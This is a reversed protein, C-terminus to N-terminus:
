CNVEFYVRRDGGESIWDLALQFGAIYEETFDTEDVEFVEAGDATKRINFSRNEVCEADSSDLAGLRDSRIADLAKRVDDADELFYYSGGAVNDYGAHGASTCNEEFWHVLPMHIWGGAHWLHYEIAHVPLEKINEPDDDRRAWDATVQRGTLYLDLGM